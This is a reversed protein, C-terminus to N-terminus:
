RRGVRAPFEVMTTARPFCLRGRHAVLSATKHCSLAFLFAFFLGWQNLKPV